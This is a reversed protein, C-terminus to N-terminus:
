SKGVTTNKFFLLQLATLYVPDTNIIKRVFGGLENGSWAFASPLSLRCLTSRSLRYVDGRRKQCIKIKNNGNFKNM